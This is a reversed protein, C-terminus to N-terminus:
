QVYKYSPQKVFRTGGLRYKRSGIKWRLFAKCSSFFSRTMKFRYKFLVLFFFGESYNWKCQYISFNFGLSYNSSWYNSYISTPCLSMKFGVIRLLLGLISVTCCWWWQDIQPRRMPSDIISTWPQLTWLFGVTGPARLNNQLTRIKYMVSAESSWGDTHM